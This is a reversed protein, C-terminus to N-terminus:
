RRHLLLYNALVSVVRDVELHLPAGAGAATNCGWQADLTLLSGERVTGPALVGATTLEVAFTLADGVRRHCTVAVVGLDALHVADEHFQM